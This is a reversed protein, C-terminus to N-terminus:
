QATGKLFVAQWPKYYSYFTRQQLIEKGRKVQWDFAVKAGWAQWDIQKIIGLPLTPDDQYRPPPPPSQDWIRSPSITAERGDWAGYLDFTLEKNPLNIYNQILIYAPTDNKFKLDASPSFVTADVGLQYNEEYYHVRYAHAKREEIPLGANLAARFLTTSVQCVGGGDGLVTRGKKIIYAPQYGTQRSIEGVAQNFSFTTGPPILLGNLRKSSLTINHIRSPISGKFWSKGQGILQKIGLNNVDQIQIKPKIIKIPLEVQVTQHDTKKLGQLASIILNITQKQDLLEGNQAPKFEAVRGQNQQNQNPIFNFLANQPPKDISKALQASYSAIKEQNFENKFDLFNIIAENNILWEKNESKLRIQKNLLKEATSKVNQVQQNTIPSSLNEIPLTINENKLWSLNYNIIALLKKQNLQRGQKGKHIIIKEKNLHNVEITPPIVPTNILASISAIRQKLQNQNLTYALPLNTGFKWNQWQQNINKIPFLQRNFNFAQNITKQPQYSFNLDALLIQWKQRKDTIKLSILNNEKIIKQLKNLSQKKTQKGFDINVIKVKPFIKNNFILRGTIITLLPYFLFLCCLLVILIQLLVKKELIM